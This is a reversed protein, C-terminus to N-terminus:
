LIGSEDKVTVPGDLSTSSVRLRLTYDGKEAFLIQGPEGFFSLGLRMKLDFDRADVIAM